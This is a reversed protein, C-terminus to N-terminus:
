TTIRYMSGFVSYSTYNITSVSYGEWGFHALFSYLAGGIGGSKYGYIVVAHNGGEPGINGDPTTANGLDGFLISPTNNDILNKLTTGSFFPTIMDYSGLNYGYWSFYNNMTQRITTSTSSSNGSPSHSFLRDTLGSGTFHRNIGTGSMYLWGDDMCDRVFTDYYGILMAAAIYGCYGGELYGMQDWSTKYRFFASNNICTWTTNYFSVGVTRTAIGNNIYNLADADSNSVLDSHMTDCISILNSSSSRNIEMPLTEGTVTHMYKGNSLVYYYTPGAYYLNSNFKSYPSPSSASYEVMTASADCMIMYGSPHCEILTYTNGAFDQLLKTRNRFVHAGYELNMGEINKDIFEFKRLQISSSEQARALNSVPYLYFSTCTALLLIIAFLMLLKKHDCIFNSKM